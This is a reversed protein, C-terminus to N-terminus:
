FILIKFLTDRYRITGVKQLWDSINGFELVSFIHVTKMNMPKYYIFDGHIELLEHM